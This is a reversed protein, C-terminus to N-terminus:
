VIAKKRYQLTSICIFQQNEMEYDPYHKLLYNEMSTDRYNYLM